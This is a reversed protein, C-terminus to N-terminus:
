KFEVQLVDGSTGFKADPKPTFEVTVDRPPKQIGCGLTAENNTLSNNIIVIKSPERVLLIRAPKGAGGAIHLKALGGPLCDVRTLQGFAKEGKPGDWWQETKSRDPGTGLRENAKMEAKRIEGLAEAKLREIEREREESARRREAEAFNARRTELDRRAQVLQEREAASGAAREAGAWAKAADSYQNAGTASEAYAKWYDVNRVELGAAQKWYFMARAPATELRALEAFPAGWQPNLSAAKQLAARAQEKQSGRIEVAYQLWASASKSGAEVAKAFLGQAEYSEATQLDALSVAKSMGADVEAIRAQESTLSKPYYDRDLNIPRSPLPKWEYTSKAAHAAVLKQFQDVPMDFANRCASSEEGGQELNSLYVRMRGSFAPDTVLMHIRAWAPTRQAAPPAGVSIHNGSVDFTSLIEELGRDIADPYRKTNADLFIRAAARRFAADLPQENPVVAVYADRVRTLPKATARKDKVALIRIPWLSKLETKGLIGTLAHRFQEAEALRTKAQKDPGNTWVEFPGSRVYTWKDEAHLPAATSACLLACVALLRRRVIGITADAPRPPPASM